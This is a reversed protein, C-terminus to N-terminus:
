SRRVWVSAPQTVPSPTPLRSRVWRALASEPISLSFCVGGRHPEIWRIEGRIPPLDPVMLRVAGTGRIPTLTRIRVGGSSIDEVHGAYERKGIRIRARCRCSLRRSNRRDAAPESLLAANM